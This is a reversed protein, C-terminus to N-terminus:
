YIEFRVEITVLAPLSTGDKTAPSFTWQKVAELAKEDLGEGLPRAVWANRVEGRTGVVVGLVCVGAYKSDRAKESYEPDPSYTAKPPTVVTFDHVIRGDMLEAKVDASPSLPLDPSLDDAGLYVADTDRPFNIEIEHQAEAPVGNITSPEYLWQRVAVLSAQALDHDGSSITVDKLSGDVTVTARLRVLGNKKRKRRKEPYVPPTVHIPRPLTVIKFESDASAAIGSDTPGVAQSFVQRPAFAWGLVLSACAFALVFAKM